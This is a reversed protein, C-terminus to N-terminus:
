MWQGNQRALHGYQSKLLWTRSVSGCARNRAVQSGLQRPLPRPKSPPRETGDEEAAARRAQHVRLRDRGEDGVCGPQECGHRVQLDRQLGIRGADLPGLQLREALGAHVPDGRPM